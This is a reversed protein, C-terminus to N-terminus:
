NIKFFDERHINWGISVSPFYGIRNSKSFKSSKDSRISTSILYRNEYDYNLRAFFSLLASNYEQNTIDGKGNFVTISRGGLDTSGSGIGMTRYYERLWSSGIMADITHSNYTNKFTLINDVTYSFQRARSESLSNITRSYDPDANGNEDWYSDFARSHSYNNTSVYDGGM